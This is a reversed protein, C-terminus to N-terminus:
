LSWDIPRILSLAVMWKTDLVGSGVMWVFRRLFKM